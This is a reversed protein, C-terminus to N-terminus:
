VLILNSVELVIFLFMKTVLLYSNQREGSM